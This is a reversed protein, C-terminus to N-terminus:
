YKETALNKFKFVAFVVLVDLEFEKICDIRRVVSVYSHTKLHLIGALRATLLHESRVFNNDM